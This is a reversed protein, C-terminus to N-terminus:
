ALIFKGRPADWKVSATPSEPSFDLNLAQSSVKTVVTGNNSIGSVFIAVPTSPSFTADIMSAVLHGSIPSTVTTANVKATQALGMTVPVESNNMAGYVDGAIPKGKHFHGNKFLYQTNIDTNMDTISQCKITAGDEILVETAYIRYEEQWVITNSELPKFVIWAIPHKSENGKVLTVQLGTAYMVDLDKNDIAVNITYSAM